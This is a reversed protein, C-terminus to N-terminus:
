ETRWRRANPDHRLADEASQYRQKNTRVGEAAAVFYHTMPQLPAHRVRDYAYRMKADDVLAKLDAGTLGETQAVVQAMDIESFEDPLALLHQQIMQRRADGEPLRTELWLEIRGSRVLAPPLSAVNMATMMVCVKGSTKSELGDLQTLLFRYFGYERGSEFIVDSDDIFVICPANEEARRFIEMMKMYFDGTGAIATGDLLFFKSKLRHALARGISTKGTGPPGVLLVGRKPRLQLEEALADNELPTIINAKLSDIVEDMGCLDELAVSQVEELNINSILQHSRLIDIFEETNISMRHRAYLSVQRLNYGNLSKAFRFVQNYDIASALEAPLFQFGFFEYDGATFPPIQQAYGRSILADSFYSDSFFVVCKEAEVVYAALAAFTAEQLGSRPYFQGHYLNTFLHLDDVLLLDHRALERVMLNLFANEMQLPHFPDASELIERAGIVGGGHRHHLCRVITSKGMGKGGRILILNFEEMMREVMAVTESQSPSLDDPIM